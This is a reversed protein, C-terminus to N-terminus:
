ILFTNRLKEVLDLKEWPYLKKFFEDNEVVEYGFHGYRSTYYFETTSFKEIFSKPTLKVKNVIWEKLQPVKEFNRNVDIEVSCPEAVGIMYSLTVRCTDCFGSAVINKALYRAMYAGSRDVKSLDKGCNGTVFIRDNRRLLLMGSPVTFCYMADCNYSSVTLHSTLGGFSLEKVKGINVEYCISKREYIKEDVRQTKGIRDDCRINSHTNYIMSFVFQIFDADDKNTTRFIGKKEDGDWKLVEKALVLLQHTNANKFISYLSKNNPIPPVFTYYHNQHEGKNLLYYETNTEKLLWELRQIKNKKKINIRGKDGPISNYTGDACFAVQLRIQNDTLDIGKNSPYYEFTCPISDKFGTKNNYFKELVEKVKIKYINNKSTKAVMDHNESLVMDISSPSYFHYMKESPNIHYKSPQVFELIGNNWQGVKEGSYESIKHWKLDESIYETDGDVCFAGGGINCYGGYSDVVLKRGTVGCDSIPGGIHWAGCPNVDIKICKDKILKKHIEEDINMLNGEISCKVTERVCDISCQHMTSVLISHINVAEGKNNYEIIVQTKTDPGFLEYDAVYNCIKKAIYHGLPMYVSTENSAFGVMFGQDGAATEETKDVGSHIEESQKGILNIIKIDSPSLNHNEPFYLESYIMRVVKDYDIVAKSNIEGGLVVINDKVMVEIGARVNKDKKMFEDLIADAIQDAIKDPHGYSVFESVILKNGNAVIKEKEM